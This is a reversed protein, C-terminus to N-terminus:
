ILSPMVQFEKLGSIDTEIDKEWHDIKRDFSLSGVGGGEQVFANRSEGYLLEIAVMKTCIDEVIRNVVTEGYRYKLRIGKPRTIGWRAHVHLVGTSYDVWFDEGRGETRTILWDEWESGNWVELADGESADFEYVRRHSLYVPRGTHYEYRFEMDYYEYNATQDDGSKTGSYRKRWAHGTKYDIEDQKKSIIQAVEQITPTTTDTITPLRMFKEVRRVSTYKEFQPQFADSQDTENDDSSNYYSTKYWSTTTGNMDYYSLDTALQGSEGNIVGYTGSKTSSRYVKWRNYNSDIPVMDQVILNGTVM